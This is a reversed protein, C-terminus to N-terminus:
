IHDAEEAKISLSVTSFASMLQILNFQWTHFNNCKLELKVSTQEQQAFQYISDQTM